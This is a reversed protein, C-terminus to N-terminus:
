RDDSSGKLWERLGADVAGPATSFLHSAMEELVVSPEVRAAVCAAFFREFRRDFLQQDFSLARREVSVLRTRQGVLEKALRANEDQAQKLRDAYAAIRDASLLLVRCLMAGFCLALAWGIWGLVSM